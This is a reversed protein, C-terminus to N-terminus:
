GDGRKPPHQGGGARVKKFEVGMVDVVKMTAVEGDAGLTFQVRAGALLDDELTFTDYHYHALPSTFNGWHWTLTGNALAVEATGYAPEEYTGAYAALERSPQTQRHRQEQRERSRARAQAEERLVVGQFYGTWDKRPLGLLLDVLTNSVAINMWTQHRNNLLVIGAHAEPILTLHARFGDIAGAHELLGHGRYDHIVWAMGYNMQFTDPNMARTTGELPIINQPAHTEALAAASVLRKGEWTGDGLQFRVWRALDRASSNISGAPEPVDMKYWPIVELEGSRGRRHPSAHDPEREAASTTFSTHKM